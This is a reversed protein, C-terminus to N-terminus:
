SNLCADDKTYADIQNGFSVNLHQLLILFQILYM